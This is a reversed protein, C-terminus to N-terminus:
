SMWKWPYRHRHLRNRGEPEEQQKLRELAVEIAEARVKYPTFRNLAGVLNKIFDEPDRDYSSPM